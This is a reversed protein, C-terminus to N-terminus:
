SAPTAEPTAEETGAMAGGVGAQDDGETMGVQTPITVVAGNYVVPLDVGPIKLYEYQGNANTDSHLMAWVLAPLTMDPLSPPPALPVAVSASEGDPVVLHGLSAGPHGGEDAHVDIVGAGVSLASDIRLEGTAGPTATDLTQNPAPIIYPVTTSELPTGDALLLTPAAALNIPRMAIQENIAVPADAGEVQGFEYAGLENTDFHLMPWLVPTQGEALLPVIVAPNTGPVLPAQGLVPGPQGSADAHVVLWGGEALIAAAVIVTNEIPQQDFAVIAAVTFTTYSGTLPADAAPNQAWEFVGATSDDVHLMAHLTPTAMAGDIMVSVNETTGAPIPAVGVVHHPVGNKDAHIVVFGAVDSTVSAIVAMGNVSIQDAVTLAPDTAQEGAQVETDGEPTAEPTAEQAGVSVALMLALLAVLMAFWFRRM